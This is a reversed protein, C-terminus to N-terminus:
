VCVEGKRGVWVAWVCGGWGGVTRGTWDTTVVMVGHPANRSNSRQFLHTPPVIVAARHVVRAVGDMPRTAPAPSLTVGFLHRDRTGRGRGEGSLCVCVCVCVYLCVCVVFFYVGYLGCASYVCM